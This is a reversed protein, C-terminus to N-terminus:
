GPAPMLQGTDWRNNEFVNGRLGAGFDTTAGYVGCKGSPGRQFINDQWTNNSGPGFPKSLTSGGYACFGSSPSWELLNRQVLNNQITAFDGYGTLDASCGSEPAVEPADCRITNHIFRQSNPSTGSGQRFGSMHAQGGEDRDQGHIWSDRVECNEECFGGSIGRVTEVRILTFNRDEIARPGDNGTANVDGADITSDTVTVSGGANESVVSGNIKSNKIVVGSAAIEIDCNVTKSDIITTASTIRCPGTYDTLVAGAPVGTNSPGPFCGGWPDKGDSVNTSASACTGPAGQPPQPPKKKTNKKRPNTGRRLEVADSTGDRDTDRRRPNTHSRKVEYRDSLGDGDTDRKRPNTHSRRVEFGDSLRDRDTDRRRPNTHSRTREYRNSLGDHDRDRSKADAGSPAVALAIAAASTFVLAPLWKPCTKDLGHGHM